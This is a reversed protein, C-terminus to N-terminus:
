KTATVVHASMPADVGHPGEFRAYAREVAEAVRDLVAPGRDEIEVSM